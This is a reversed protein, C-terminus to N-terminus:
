GFINRLANQVGGVIGGTELHFDEFETDVTNDNRLRHSGGGVAAGCEPCTSQEMAM